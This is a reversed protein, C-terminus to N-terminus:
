ESCLFSSSEELAQSALDEELAADSHSLWGCWSLSDWSLQAYSSPVEHSSEISLLCNSSAVGSSVLVPSLHFLQLGNFCVSAFILRMASCLVTRCGGNCPPCHLGMSRGGCPCAPYCCPGACARVSEDELPTRRIRALGRVIVPCLLRNIRWPQPLGRM